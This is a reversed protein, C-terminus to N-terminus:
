RSLCLYKGSISSILLISPTGLPTVAVCQLVVEVYQLVSHQAHGFPNCLYTDICTCM